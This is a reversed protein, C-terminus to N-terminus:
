QQPAASPLVGTSWIYQGNAGRPTEGVEQQVTGGLAWYMSDSIRYRPSSTLIALGDGSSPATGAPFTVALYSDGVSNRVVWVVDTFPTVSDNAGRIEHGALDNALAAARVAANGAIVSPEIGSVDTPLHTVQVLGGSVEVTVDGDTVTVEEGDFALHERVHLTIDDITLQDGLSYPATEEPTPEEAEEEEVNETGETVDEDTSDSENEQVSRAVVPETRPGEPHKLLLSLPRSGITWGVAALAVIVIGVRIRHQTAERKLRMAREAENEDLGYVQPDATGAAKAYAADSVNVADKKKTKSKKSETEKSQEEYTTTESNSAEITKPSSDPEPSAAHSPTPRTKSDEDEEQEPEPKKPAAHSPTRAGEKAADGEDETTVDEASSTKAAHAGVPAEDDSADEEAEGEPVPTEGDADDDPETDIPTDETAETDSPAGEDDSAQSSETALTEDASDIPSLAEDPSDPAVTEEISNDETNLVEDEAQSEVQPLIQTDDSSAAGNGPSLHKMVKPYESESAM